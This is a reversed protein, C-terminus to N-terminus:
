EATDEANPSNVGGPGQVEAVANALAGRDPLLDSVGSDSETLALLLHGVSVYSDNAAAMEREAAQLVSVLESSPRVEATEALKPLDEMKQVARATAGAVDVNLRQLVSVAIGGEQRLLAVLLHTPTVEANRREAALAQAAAVAEQSKVTFRDPQM